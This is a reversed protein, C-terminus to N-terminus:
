RRMLVTYIGDLVSGIDTFVVHNDVCHVRYGQRELFCTRRNDYEVDVDNGHTAGDVEIILKEKRCVFDVIYPGVPQQRVFKFDALRRNRLGGWLKREAETPQHRMSKARVFTLPLTKMCHLRFQFPKGDRSDSSLSRMRGTPAGEGDAISFPCGAFM